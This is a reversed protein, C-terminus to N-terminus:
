SDEGSSGKKSLGKTITYRSRRLRKSHNKRELIKVEKQDSM